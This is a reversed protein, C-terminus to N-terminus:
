AAQARLATSSDQDDVSVENDSASSDDYYNSHGFEGALQRLKAEEVWAFVGDLAAIQLGAWGSRIGGRRVCVAAFRLTARWLGRALHPREGARYRRLAAITSRENLRDIFEAVTAYACAQITGVIGNGCDADTSVRAQGEDISLSCEDQRFLRVPPESVPQGITRGFYQKELPIRFAAQAKAKAIRQQLEKALSPTVCENQHLVLVWPCRAIQPPSSKASSSKAMSTPTTLPECVEIRKLVNLREEATPEVLLVDDAIDQVSDITQRALPMQLGGECLILVSLEADVETELPEAITAIREIGAAQLWERYPTQLFAEAFIARAEGRHHWGRIHLFNEVDFVERQQRRRAEGGVRMKELDILWVELNDDVIFNEPKMDNHSVGLEVLRQWIGAVQAAVHRLEDSTQSGFRIYRYLSTGEVYDSVLYSRYTWPGFRFNVTARPRPTPIGRSHLYLGLRACSLAAPERFMMRLTRSIGGWTHRKVLLSGSDCECRGVVCRDKVQLPITSFLVRDVDGAWLADILEKPLDADCWVRRLLSWRRLARPSDTTRSADDRM